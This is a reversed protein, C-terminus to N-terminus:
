FGHVGGGLIYRGVRERKSGGVDHTEGEIGADLVAYLHLNGWVTKAQEGATILILKALAQFLTERIKM